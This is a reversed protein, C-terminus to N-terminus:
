HPDPWGRGASPRRIRGKRAQTFGACKRTPNGEADLHEHCMFDGEGPHTCLDADGTTIASQNACTGVRFACGGCTKAQDVGEAISIGSLAGFTLSMLTLSNGESVVFLRVADGGDIVLGPAAGADIVISM